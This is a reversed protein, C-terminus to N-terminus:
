TNWDSPYNPKQDERDRKSQYDKYTERAVYLITLILLPVGLLPFFVALLILVVIWFLLYGSNVVIGLLEEM